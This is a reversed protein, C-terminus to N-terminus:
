NLELPNNPGLDELAQLIDLDSSRLGTLTKEKVFDAKINDELEAKMEAGEDDEDLEGTIFERLLDYQVYDTTKKLIQSKPKFVTTGRDNAVREVKDAIILEAVIRQVESVKIDFSSSKKQLEVGTIGQPSKRILRLVSAMGKHAENKGFEGLARPMFNETYTLLTNAYVVDNLTIEMRLNTAAIILSLKLLHTYRRGSFSDLREDDLDRWNNYISNLAKDAEPSITVEGQLDQMAALATIVDIKLDKPLPPPMHLKKRQKNGLVIITRSLIGQGTSTSPFVTSFTVPTAGGLLSVTPNKIYDSNRSVLRSDYKDLNDYLNTLLSLFEKNSPGMFDELEGAKILINNVEDDHQLMKIDSVGLELGSLNGNALDEIFKERGTKDGSFRDFGSDRLCNAALKIASSKRSGSPGVLITYMNPYLKDEGFQVYVNRSLLAGVCTLICWRHYLYSPETNEVLDLYSDQFIGSDNDM